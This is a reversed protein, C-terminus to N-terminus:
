RNQYLCDHLVQMVAEKQELVMPVGIKKDVYLPLVSNYM